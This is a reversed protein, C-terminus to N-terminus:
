IDIDWNKSKALEEDLEQKAKKLEYELPDSMFGEDKGYIKTYYINLSANPPYWTKSLVKTKRPNGDKDLVITTTESERYYGIAAEIGANRLKELVDKGKDKSLAEAFEPYKNRYNNLTAVSIGLARAIEAEIVGERVKKNIDELYPKVLTEYKSKAGSKKMYGGEVGSSQM